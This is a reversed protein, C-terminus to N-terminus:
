ETIYRPRHIRRHAGLVQKRIIKASRTRDLSRNQFIAGTIDGIMAILLNDRAEDKSNMSFYDMSIRPIIIDFSKIEM